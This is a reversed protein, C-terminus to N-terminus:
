AEEGLGALYELAQPPAPRERYGTLWGHWLLTGNDEHVVAYEEGSINSRETDTCDVIVDAPSGNGDIAERIGPEQYEDDADFLTDGIEFVKIKM